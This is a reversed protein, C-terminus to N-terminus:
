LCIIVTLGTQCFIVHHVLAVMLVTQVTLRLVCETLVATMVTLGTLCSLVHSVLAAGGDARM